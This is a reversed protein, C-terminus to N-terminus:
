HFVFRDEGWSPNPALIDECEADRFAGLDSGPKLAGVIGLEVADGGVAFGEEGPDGALHM